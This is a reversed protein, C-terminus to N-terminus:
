KLQAGHASASKGKVTSQKLFERLGSKDTCDQAFAIDMQQGGGVAILDGGVGNTGNRGDNGARGPTGNAGPHGGGCCKDGNGGPGGQGGPGISGAKGGLGGIGGHAEFGVNEGGTTIDLVLIGGNGGDAGRGGYGANGGPGANGGNGGARRCNGFWCDSVDPGDGPGGNPGPGGNGGSGGNGGDEGNVRVILSNAQGIFTQALLVVKSGRRGYVGDQGDQGNGSAAASNAGNPGDSARGEFSVVEAHQAAITKCRIKLTFGNTVIKAGDDFQCAQTPADVSADQTLSQGHIPVTQGQLTLASFASAFLFLRTLKLM